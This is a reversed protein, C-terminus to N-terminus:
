FEVSVPDFLRPKSWGLCISSIDTLMLGLSVYDLSPLLTCCFRACKCKLFRKPCINAVFSRFGNIINIDM